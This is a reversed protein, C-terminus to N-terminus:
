GSPVPLVEMVDVGDGPFVMFHPHQVFMRAAVEQSEAKVIVFAALNNRVDSIGTGSVRKTKSLPGGMEVISSAHDEAWEKWATMGQAQRRLREDEALAQWAAMEAAGGTFVCLYKKM